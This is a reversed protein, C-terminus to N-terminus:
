FGSLSPTSNSLAIWSTYRHLSTVTAYIRLPRTLCRKCEAVPERALAHSAELDWPHKRM